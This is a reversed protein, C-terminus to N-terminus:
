LPGTHHGFNKKVYKWLFPSSCFETYIRVTATQIPPLGIDTCRASTLLTSKM